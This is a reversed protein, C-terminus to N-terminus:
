FYVIYFRAGGKELRKRNCAYSDHLSPKLESLEHKIKENVNSLIGCFCICYFFNGADYGEGPGKPSMAGCHSLEKLKRFSNNEERMHRIISTLFHTSGYSMLRMGIIWDKALRWLKVTLGKTGMTFFFFTSMSAHYFINCWQQIFRLLILQMYM